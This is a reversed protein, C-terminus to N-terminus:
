FLSVVWTNVESVQYDSMRIIASASEMSVISVGAPVAAAIPLFRTVAVGM